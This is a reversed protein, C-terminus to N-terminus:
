LKNLRTIFFVHYTSCVTNIKRQDLKYHNHKGVKQFKVVLFDVTQLIKLVFNATAICKSLNNSQLTSIFDGHSDRMYFRKVFTMSIALSLWLLPATQNTTLIANTKRQVNKRHIREEATILRHVNKNVM